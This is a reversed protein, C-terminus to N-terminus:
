LPPSGPIRQPFLPQYQLHKVPAPQHKFFEGRSVLCDNSAAAMWALYKGTTERLKRVYLSHEEQLMNTMQRAMSDIGSRVREDAQVMALHASANAKDIHHQALSDSSFVGIFYGIVLSVIIWPLRDFLTLM